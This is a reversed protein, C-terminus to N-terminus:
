RRTTRLHAIHSLRGLAALGGVGVGLLLVLSPEPLAVADLDAAQWDQDQASGDYALSWTGDGSDWEILDEDDVVVGGVTASVDLSVALNGNLLRHAGDVDAAEPIGEASGDFFSTFSSPGDVRVLDEDAAFVGGPLAVAVDFSVLLNESADLTVADCRAGEPVGNASADFAIVWNPGVFRVVDGPEAFLGPLEITTLDVTTDFCLLPADSALLDYGTVDSAGPLAALPALTTVGALDDVAVDEDNTDQANVGLQVSV